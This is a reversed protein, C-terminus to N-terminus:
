LRTITSGPARQSGGGLLPGAKRNGAGRDQPIANRIYLVVLRDVYVYSCGRKPTGPRDPHAISAAKTLLTVIM